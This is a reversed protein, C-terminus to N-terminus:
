TKEVNSEWDHLTSTGQILVTSPLKINLLVNENTEQANAVGFFGFLILFLSIKNNM